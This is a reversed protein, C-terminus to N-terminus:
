VSGQRHLSEEESSEQKVYNLKIREMIFFNRFYEPTMDKFPVEVCWNRYSYNKSLSFGDSNKYRNIVSDIRQPSVTNLDFHIITKVKDGRMVNIIYDHPASNVKNINFLKNHTIESDYVNIKWFANDLFAYLFMSSRTAPTIRVMDGGLIKVLKGIPFHISYKDLSNLHLYKRLKIDRNDVPNIKVNLNNNINRSLISCNTCICDEMSSKREVYSYFSGGCIRCFQPYYNYFILDSERFREVM